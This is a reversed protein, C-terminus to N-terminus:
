TRQAVYISTVYPRTVEGGLERDVIDHVRDLLETRLPEDLELWPAFTAYLARAQAPTHTASWDFRHHEVPGFRRTRCGLPM